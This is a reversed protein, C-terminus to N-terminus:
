NLVRRWRTKPTIPHKDIRKRNAQKPRDWTGGGAPGENIWGAARLTTGPETDLIYTIISKYGMAKAVQAAASYLYSCTNATGDTCLRSVEATLGDDLMRAAPRGVIVVDVLNDADDYAGLSFKHTQVKQHHRHLATVFANSERLHLPKRTM